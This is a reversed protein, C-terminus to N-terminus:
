SKQVGLVDLIAQTVQDPTQLGNVKKLLGKNNYFPIIPATERHYKLLREEVADETDDARHSVELGKPPPNFTMHYITGTIPDTRRGTIRDVIVDDPAELLVVADLSFDDAALAADLADAQPETRPFGDLMFGKKCDEEKIREVVMKIVIEDSVLGGKAMINQVRKGLDTGNKIAARFMDGSSIHPIVLKKVLRKAQTGKGAGPPGVLIMRM